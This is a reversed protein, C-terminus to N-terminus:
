PIISIVAINVWKDQNNRSRRRRKMHAVVFPSITRLLTWWTVWIEKKSMEGLFPQYAFDEEPISRMRGSYNGPIKQLLEITAQMIKTKLILPISEDDIRVPVADIFFGFDNFIRLKTSLLYL